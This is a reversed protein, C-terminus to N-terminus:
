GERISIKELLLDWPAWPKDPEPPPLQYTVTAPEFPVNKHLAYGQEDLVGALESGGDFCLTYPAKPIADSGDFFNLALDYEGKGPLYPVKVTQTAGGETDLRRAKRTYTGATEYRIQGQEILISSGGGVLRIRKKGALLIEKASILTLKQEASLHMVGHQAQFQVPGQASILRLKGHQAFMGVSDGALGTIHGEAGMSIDGGANLAINKAAALHLHEASTLAMGEPASFHIMENLTKLRTAFMTQQSAIDAELAKAQRTASALGEIQARVAEIERLAVDMDLVDGEGHVKGDATVLLGKAVRIVGFEDTRLEFGTGRPENETDVIHGQNLATAGFPTSLAIHESQRQDELRLENQGATRLINQSRNDRTVVDPHESDHFAHAIYPRDPDGGDFAIGVETGDILPTHWGYTEGAYPKAQRIWLYNYGQEADERSFDLKVRYRGTEDLHAYPANKEDSEVRGTLTGAIVPRPTTKPRFCYQESYPMGWVSVHLRTDRAARFTILTIVMGEKLEPVDSDGAELVMGPTLHSANSFLHLRIANNLAHEHQIRAYFAGSETEPESITDDGAERYPAAYHYHEGTTAAENRVSVQADMPTSAARYNYDRTAVSGTVTHHWVRADWVAEVAGDHLASPERYPLRVDFQYQLQSDAFTVTDLGTTTNVGTRFWIGDEALIRQIFQLDTERWQTILERVPYTRELRFEFDAGELGHSRLVQEVLEPVSVNQWVACRRSHALLALRSSLTVAFHTRDVTENLVEFGTIIGQVVRGSLMSLTGYKLMVDQRSIGKQPTTFEIRWEFPENLAERGHFNLVDPKLTSDNIELSYRTQGDFLALWNDSTMDM